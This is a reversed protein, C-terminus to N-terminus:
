RRSETESPKLRAAAAVPLKSWGLGDPEKGGHLTSTVKWTTLDVVSVADANTHAVYAFKGAPEVLIGVPVSSTGFSDGFLRGSTDGAEIQMRVRRVEEFSAADFVAVEGSRACSVLVWRGDTTAKARIPFSACPRTAVVELSATDLISVTDAGRNTVWVHKGVIEIGEAGEGTPIDSLHKGSVLDLVSVSGSGINAVFARTEDRTVAVMHSVEQNTEISRLVAGKEVDVLLLAKSGEVTVAVRKGDALFLIGHPRTFTGLAITRLVRAAAVDIVTLTKGPAERTGYDAVVALRGDPSVAVEHPGTGTPVRAVEAGSATDLLSASAEAKNLVILTEAAAAPPLALATIAISAVALASAPSRRPRTPM